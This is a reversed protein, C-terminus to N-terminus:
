TEYILKRLEKTTEPWENLNYCKIEYGKDRLIRQMEAQDMLSCNEMHVLKDEITADVYSNILRDNYLYQENNLWDNHLLKIDQESRVIKLDLWNCIHNITDVFNDRLLNIQIPLVNDQKINILENYGSEAILQDHLYLSLFERLEWTDKGQWDSLNFTNQNHAIWGGDYIKTQRNNLLWIFDDLGPYPAIIKDYVTLLRSFSEQITDEKVIIPHLICNDIPESIAKEVTGKHTDKWKHSSHTEPDFPRFDLAYHGQLWHLTWAIFNGYCGGPFAICYM